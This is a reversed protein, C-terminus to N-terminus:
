NKFMSKFAGHLISENEDMVANEKWKNMEGDLYTLADEM